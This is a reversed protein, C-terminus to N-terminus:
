AETGETGEAGEERKKAVVYAVMTKPDFGPAYRIDVIAPLDAKLKGDTALEIQYQRLIPIQEKWTKVSQTNLGLARALKHLSGFYSVAENLTM